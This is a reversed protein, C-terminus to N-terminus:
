IEQLDELNYARFIENLFDNLEIPSNKYTALAVAHLKKLYPIRSFNYKLIKTLVSFKPPKDEPFEELFLKKIEENDSLGEM